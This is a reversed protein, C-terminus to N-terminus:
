CIAIYEEFHLDLEFTIRAGISYGVNIFNWNDIIEISYVSCIIIFFHRQFTFHTTLCRSFISTRPAISTCTREGAYLRMFGFLGTGSDLIGRFKHFNRFEISTIQKSTKM